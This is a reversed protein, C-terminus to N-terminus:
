PISSIENKETHAPVHSVLYSPMHALIKGNFRIILDYGEIVKGIISYQIEYKDLISKLNQSELKDIIFLMREQSESIMIESPLM